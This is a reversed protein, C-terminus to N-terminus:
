WQWRMAGDDDWRMTGDCRGTSMEREDVVMDRLL